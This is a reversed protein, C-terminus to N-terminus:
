YIRHGGCGEAGSAQVFGEARKDDGLVDGDREGLAGAVREDTGVAGALGRQDVEDGAREFGIGAPDMEAFLVDGGERGIAADLVAEGAGELDVGEEGVQSGSSATVRTIQSRSLMAPM